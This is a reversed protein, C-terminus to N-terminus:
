IHQENQLSAIRSSRRVTNNDCYSTTKRKKNDKLPNIIYKYTGNGLKKKNKLWCNSAEDFDINVEYLM